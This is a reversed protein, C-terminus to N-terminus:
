RSRLFTATNDIRFMDWYLLVHHGVGTDWGPKILSASGSPKIIQIESICNHSRTLCDTSPQQRQTQAQPRLHVPCPLGHSPFISTVHLFCLHVPVGSILSSELLSPQFGNQDRAAELRSGHHSVELSFSVLRWWPVLRVGPRPDFFTSSANGFPQVPENATMYM